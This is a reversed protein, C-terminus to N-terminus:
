FLERKIHEAILKAGLYNHHTGDNQPFYYGKNYYNIGLDYYNDIFPVHYEKATNKTAEVFDTLKDGNGNTHTDSDDVFTTGSLWFRYTQGCVFIKIHPYATLIQQLSYRLAGCFTTTDLKNNENDLTINGTFDNTGFAISIIDIESWDISKLLSLTSPFYVLLGASTDEIAQDQLTFDNNAIAYALRYMSFADWTQSSRAAMDTGGFGLNYVKAGTIQELAYSVSFPAQKNGFISDGFNAIKKNKFPLYINPTELSNNSLDYKSEYDVFQTPETFSLCVSNSGDQVTTKNAWFKFKAIGTKFTQSPATQITAIKVDYGNFRGSFSGLYNNYEDYYLFCCIRDNNETQPFKAYIYETGFPIDIYDNTCMYNSNSVFTTGDTNNIYGNLTFNKPNLVNQNNSVEVTDLAIQPAFTQWASWVNNWRFRYYPPLSVDSPIFMQMLGYANTKDWTFVNLLGRASEYPLNSMNSNVLYAGNEIYNNFDSSAISQEKFNKAQASNFDIARIVEQWDKWGSNGVFARYYMKESSNTIYLQIYGYNGTINYAFVLLTGQENSPAHSLSSNVLWAGNQKYNDFDSSAIQKTARFVENLTNDIESKTYYNDGVAEQVLEDLDEIVSQSPIGDALVDREVAMIFNLTGIDVSGNAIKFTGLNYGVCACMQETTVLDVYKNGQTATVSTEIITNDPKRLNLTVTDGSQLTYPTLGDFLEFRIVRGEDYQKAHCTPNVGNPILNLKIIEM